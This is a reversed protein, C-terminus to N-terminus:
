WSAHARHLRHDRPSFFFPRPHPQTRSRGVAGCRMADCGTVSRSAVIGVVAFGIGVAVAIFLLVAHISDFRISDFRDGAAVTARCGHWAMCAFFEGTQKREERLFCACWLYRQTTNLLTRTSTRYRLPKTKKRAIHTTSVLLKHHQDCLVLMAHNPAANRNRSNLNSRCIDYV